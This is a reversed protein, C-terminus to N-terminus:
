HEKCRGPLVMPQNTTHLQPMEQDYESVQHNEQQMMPWINNRTLYKKYSSCSCLDIQFTKNRHMLEKVLGCFLLIYQHKEITQSATVSAIGKISCSLLYCIFLHGSYRFREVVIHAVQRCKIQLTVTHHFAICNM